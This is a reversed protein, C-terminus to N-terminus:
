IQRRVGHWDAWPIERGPFAPREFPWDTSLWQRVCTYLDEDLAIESDRVWLYVECDFGAVTPPYIYVCGLCRDRSPTLVTYAFAQRSRFEAEHRELDGINEEPPMDDAPWHDNERFVKRLRERSSMVADYDMEAVEPRLVELRYRDIALSEPVAFDPLVFMNQFSSM